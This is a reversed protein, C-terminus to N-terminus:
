APAIPFAARWCLGVRPCDSQWDGFDQSDLFRQTREPTASNVVPFAPDNWICPQQAARCYPQYAPASIRACEALHKFVHAGIDTYIGLMCAIVLKWPREPSGQAFHQRGIDNREM